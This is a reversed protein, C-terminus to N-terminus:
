AVNDKEFILKTEIELVTKRLEGCDECCSAM